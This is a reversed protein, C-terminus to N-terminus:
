NQNKRVLLDRCETMRALGEELGVTRAQLEAIREDKCRTDYRWSAYESTLADFAAKKALLAGNAAELGAIRERADSLERHLRTNEGRQEDCEESPANLAPQIRVCHDDDDDNESSTDSRKKRKGIPKVSFHMAFVQQYEMKTDGSSVLVRVGSLHADECEQNYPFDHDGAGLLRKAIDLRRMKDVLQVLALLKGEGDTAYEAHKVKVGLREMAALDLKTATASTRMIFKYIRSEASPQMSPPDSHLCWRVLSISDGENQKKLSFIPIPFFYDVITKLM